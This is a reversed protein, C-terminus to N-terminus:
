GIVRVEIRQPADGGSCAESIRELIHPALHRVQTVWAPHDAGVFLTPGELKLPHVHSAVAPGVIEEWGGFVAAVTSASGVGLRATLDALSDGIRLPENGAPEHHGTRSTGRNPPLDRTRTM